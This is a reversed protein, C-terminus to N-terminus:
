PSDTQAPVQTTAQAQLQAAKIQTEINGVYTMFQCLAEKVHSINADTPCLFQFLKGEVVHELQSINKIM